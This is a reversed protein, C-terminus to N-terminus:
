RVYFKYTRFSKQQLEKSFLYKLSGHFVGETEENGLMTYTKGSGTQGYAFVCLTYGYLVREIYPRLASFVFSQSDQIGFNGDVKFKKPKLDM